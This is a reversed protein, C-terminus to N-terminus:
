LPCYQNNLQDLIDKLSEIRYCDYSNIADRVDRILGNVTDDGDVLSVYGYRLPGAKNQLAAVAHASLLRIANMLDNHPNGKGCIENQPITPDEVFAIVEGMTWGDIPNGDADTMPYVSTGFVADFSAGPPFNADWPPITQHNKWYGPTCGEGTCDETGGSVNGSLQGSDTCSRYGALVPRSSVSMIVPAGAVIGKVLRRRDERCADDGNIDSVSQGEVPMRTGHQDHIGAKKSM